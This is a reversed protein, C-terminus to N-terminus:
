AIEEVLAQVKSLREKSAHVKELVTDIERIGPINCEKNYIQL